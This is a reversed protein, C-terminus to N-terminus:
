PEGQMDFRGKVVVVGVVADIRAHGFEHEVLFSGELHGPVRDILGSFGIRDLAKEGVLGVRDLVAAM